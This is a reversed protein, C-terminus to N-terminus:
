MVQEVADLRDTLFHLCPKIDQMDVKHADELKTFMSQIDVKTPLLSFFRKLVRPMDAKEEEELDSNGSDRDRM